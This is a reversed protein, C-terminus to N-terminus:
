AIVRKDASSRCAQVPLGLRNLCAVGTFVPWAQTPLGEGRVNTKPNRKGESESLIKVSRLNITAAM